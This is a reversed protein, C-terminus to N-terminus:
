KDKQKDSFGNFQRINLRIRKEIFIISDKQKDKNDNNM